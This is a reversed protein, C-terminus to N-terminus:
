ARVIDDYRYVQFYRKINLLWAEVAEESEGDFTPPKLKKFEGRLEISHEKHKGQKMEKNKKLNQMNELLNETTEESSENHVISRRKKGVSCSNQGNNKPPETLSKLIIENIEEQDSKANMLIINDAKLSEIDVKLGRMTELIESQVDVNRKSGLEVFLSADEMDLMDEPVYEEGINQEPKTM